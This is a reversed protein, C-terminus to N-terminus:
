SKRGRDFYRSSISSCIAMTGSLANLGFSIDAGAHSAPAAIVLALGVFSAGFLGYFRRM